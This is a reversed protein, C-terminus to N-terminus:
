QPAGIGLSVRCMAAGQTAIGPDVPSTPPDSPGDAGLQEARCSACMGDSVRVPLGHEPCKRPRTERTEAVPLGVWHPGDMAIVAPTRADGRTCRIAAIALEHAPARHRAQHLAARVGPIGWDPRLTAVLTALARAQDDTIAGTMM